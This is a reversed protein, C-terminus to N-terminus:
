AILVGCRRGSTLMAILAIGMAFFAPMGTALGGNLFFALPFLLVNLFVITAYIAFTYIRYVTVMIAAVIVALIFAAQIVLSLTSSGEVFRMITCGVAVLFGFFLMTNIRRADLSLEDAFIYRNLLGQLRNGM